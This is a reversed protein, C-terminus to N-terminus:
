PRPAPPPPVRDAAPSLCGPALRGLLDDGEPATIRLRWLARRLDDRLAQAEDPTASDTPAPPPVAPPPPLAAPPERVACEIAAQATPLLLDLPQRTRRATQGAWEASLALRSAPGGLRAGLSRDEVYRAPRPPSAGELRVAPGCGAAGPLAALCILVTEAIPLRFRVADINPQM